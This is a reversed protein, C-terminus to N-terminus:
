QSPTRRFVHSGCCSRVRCQARGSRGSRTRMAADPRIKEAQLTKLLEGLLLPNGGTARHCARCFPLEAEPGFRDRVMAVAGAESLESLRIAVAAPDHAVDLVLRSDADLDDLRAATAVLVPLGELRRELYAIFRLSARDCWQLDDISLCLPGDAAINATLWFLGYLVGFPGGSMTEDDPPPAFVRAAPEASGGLWRERAEPELLLPEFLQRVVGFPLERELDSGGQQWWAFGARRQRRVPGPSCPARASGPRDRWCRWSLTM